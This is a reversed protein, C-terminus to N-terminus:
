PRSLRLSFNPGGVGSGREIVPIALMLQLPSPRVRLLLLQSLLRLPDIQARFNGAWKVGGGLNFRKADDEDWFIGGSPTIYSNGEIMFARGKDTIFDEANGGEARWVAENFHEDSLPILNWVGGRRSKEAFEADLKELTEEVNILHKRWMIEPDVNMRTGDAAIPQNSLGDGWVKRMSDFHAMARTNMAEMMDLLLLNGTPTKSLQPAMSLFLEMEKETVNGKTLKLKQAGMHKSLAEFWEATGIADSKWFDGFAAPGLGTDEFFKSISLFNSRLPGTKLQGTQLLERAKRINRNENEADARINQPDTLLAAIHEGM